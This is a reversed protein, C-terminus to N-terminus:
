PFEADYVNDEEIKHYSLLVDIAVLICVLFILLIRKKMNLGGSM